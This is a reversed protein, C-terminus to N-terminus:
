GCLGILNIFEAFKFNKLAKTFDDATIHDTPTYRTKVIGRQCGEKFYHYRINIHRTRRNLGAAKIIAIANQNDVAFSIVSTINPDTRVAPLSTTTANPPDIESLIYRLWTAEKTAM